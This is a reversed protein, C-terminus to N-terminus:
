LIPYKKQIFGLIEKDSDFSKIREIQHFLYNLMLKEKNVKITFIEKLTKLGLDNDSDGERGAKLEENNFFIVKYGIKQLNIKLNNIKM